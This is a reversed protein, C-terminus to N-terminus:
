GETYSEPSSTTMYHNKTNELLILILTIIFLEDSVVAAKASALM